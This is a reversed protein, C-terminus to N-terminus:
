KCGSPKLERLRIDKFGAQTGSGHDQLAILGSTMKYKTEEDTLDSFIIGNVKHILRNGCATIVMENWQGEKFAAQIEEADAVQEVTKEGDPAIHVKQGALSLLSRYKEPPKSHHWLGMKERSAIEAQYGRVQYPEFETSRVQVGSNGNLFKFQLRLELDEYEGGRYILWQNGKEGTCWIAGDRVEWAGEIGDWGSLDRGNFISKFEGPSGVKVSSCGALVVVLLVISSYRMAKVEFIM